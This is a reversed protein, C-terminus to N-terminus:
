RKNPTDWQIITYQMTWHIVNKAIIHFLIPFYELEAAVDHVTHGAPVYRDLGAYVHWSHEAPLNEVTWAQHVELMCKSAVSRM